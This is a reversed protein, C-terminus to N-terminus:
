KNGMVMKRIKMQHKVDTPHEKEEDCVGQTSSMWLTGKWVTM